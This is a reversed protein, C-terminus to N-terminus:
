LARPILNLVPCPLCVSKRRQELEHRRHDGALHQVRRTHEPIAGVNSRDQRGETVIEVFSRNDRQRDEDSNARIAHCGDFGNHIGACMDVYGGLGVYAGQRCGIDRWQPQSNVPMIDLNDLDLQFM